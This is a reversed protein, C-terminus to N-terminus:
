LMDVFTVVSPSQKRSFIKIWSIWDRLCRKIKPRLLLDKSDKQTLFYFAFPSLYFFFLTWRHFCFLLRATVVLVLSSRRPFAFSDRRFPYPSTTEVIKAARVRYAVMLNAAAQRLHKRNFIFLPSIFIVTWCFEFLPRDCSVTEYSGAFHKRESNGSVRCPAETNRNVHCTM